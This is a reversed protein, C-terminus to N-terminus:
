SLALSQKASEYSIDEPVQCKQRRQAYGPSLWEEPLYLQRDLLAYGQSSAYVAFVGSQCNAVKGLHGCYQPAVGVSEDGKKPFESSDLTLMGDPAALLESTQRQYESLIQEDNWKYDSLFMQLSRVKHTGLYNLAIPEVSKRELNSVLGKLYIEGLRQQEIRRFGFAFDQHFDYLLEALQSVTEETIGAQELAHPNWDDKGLQM